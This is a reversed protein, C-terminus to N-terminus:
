NNLESGIKDWFNNDIPIGIILFYSDIIYCYIDLFVRELFEQSLNYINKQQIQPTYIHSCRDFCFPSHTASVLTWYVIGEITGYLIYRVKRHSMYGHLTECSIYWVKLHSMSSHLTECLIYRVKLDVVFSDSTGPQIYLVM